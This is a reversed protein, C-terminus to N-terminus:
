SFREWTLGAAFAFVVGALILLFVLGLALSDLLESLFLERREARERAERRYTRISKPRAM